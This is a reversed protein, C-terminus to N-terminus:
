ALRGLFRISSIWITTSGAKGALEAPHDGVIADPSDPHGPRRTKGLKAWAALAMVGLFGFMYPKVFGGALVGLPTTALLALIPSINGVYLVLLAPKLTILVVAWGHKTGLTLLVLALYALHCLAAWLLAAHTYGLLTLPEFITAVWHAYYWKDTSENPIPDYTFDGQAAHYYIAFDAQKFEPISYKGMTWSWWISALVVGLVLIRM